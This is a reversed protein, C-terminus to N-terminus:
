RGELIRTYENMKLALKASRRSIQAPSVKLSHALTQGDWLDAGAYGLKHELIKKDVYDSEHYVYDAAETQFDPESHDPAAVGQDDGGGAFVGDAPMQKNLRRVKKIRPLSVGAEESIEELTPERGHIDELERSASMIRYADLQISEPMKISAQSERRMRRLPMLQRSVWTPLSAGYQPDYTELAKATLVRAQSYIYPDSGAGISQMVNKITPDMKKVARHLNQPSPDSKWSDYPTIDVGPVELTLDQETTPIEELNQM